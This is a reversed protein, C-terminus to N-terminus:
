IEDEGYFNCDQPEWDPDSEISDAIDEESLDRDYISGTITKTKFTKSDMSCWKAFSVEDNRDDCAEMFIGAEPHRRKFSECFENKKNKFPNYSIDKLTLMGRRRDEVADLKFTEVLDAIIKSESYYGWIIFNTSYMGKVDKKFWVASM